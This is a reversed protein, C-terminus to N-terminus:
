FPCFGTAYQHAFTIITIGKNKWIGILLYADALQYTFRYRACSRSNPPFCLYVWRKNETDWHDGGNAFLVPWRLIQLHVRINIYIVQISIHECPFICLQFSCHLFHEILDPFLRTENEVYFVLM